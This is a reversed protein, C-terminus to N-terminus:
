RNICPSSRYCVWEHMNLYMRLGNFHCINFYNFKFVTYIQILCSMILQRMQIQVTQGITKSNKINCIQPHYMQKQLKAATFKRTQKKPANLTLILTYPATIHLRHISEATETTHWEYDKFRWDPSCCVVNM